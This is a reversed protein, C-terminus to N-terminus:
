ITASLGLDKNATLAAFGVNVRDLYGISYAILLPPMFRRSIRRVTAAEIASITGTPTTDDM